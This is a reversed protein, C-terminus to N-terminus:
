TAPLLGINSGQRRWRQEIEALDMRGEMWARVSELARAQQALEQQMLPHQRIEDELGSDSPDLDELEQVYMDVTDRALTAVEVCKEVSGQEVLELILGVAGAADLAPSVYISNFDETEPEASEVRKRSQEVRVMDVDGRQLYDWALDLGAKLSNPDGWDHKEYFVLYNPLMREACSIAFVLQAIPSLQMLARMLAHDDFTMESM